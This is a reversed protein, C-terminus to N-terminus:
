PFISIVDIIVMKDSTLHSSSVLCLERVFDSGYVSSFCQKSLYAKYSSKVASTIRQKQTLSLELQPM